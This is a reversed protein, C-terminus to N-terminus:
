RSRTTMTEMWECLIIPWSYPIFSTQCQVPLINRPIKCINESETRRVKRSIDLVFHCNPAVRLAEEIESMALKYQHNELDTEAKKATKAGTLEKELDPFDPIAPKAPRLSTLLNEAAQVDGQNLLQKAQEAKALAVRITERISALEHAASDNTSDYQIARALWKECTPPDSTTVKRAEEQATKSALKGIETRKKQFKKNSPDSEAATKFEDYAPFLQNQKLLEEGKKYHEKPTSQALALPVFLVIFACLVALPRFTRM